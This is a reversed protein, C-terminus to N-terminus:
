ASTLEDACAKFLCSSISDPSRAKNFNIQKFLRNVPDIELRDVDYADIGDGVMLTNHQSFFLLRGISTSFYESFKSNDILLNKKHNEHQHGPGM